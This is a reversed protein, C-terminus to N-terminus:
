MQFRTTKLKNDPDTFAKFLEEAEVKEQSSVPIEAGGDVLVKATNTAIKVKKEFTNAKEDEYDDPLPKDIEPKITISM